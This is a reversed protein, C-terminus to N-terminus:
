LDLVTLVQYIFWVAALFLAAVINFFILWPVSWRLWWVSSLVPGGLLMVVM